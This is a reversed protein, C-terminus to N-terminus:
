PRTSGRRTVPSPYPESVCAKRSECRRAHCSKISRGSSEPQPVKKLKEFILWRMGDFNPRLWLADIAMFLFYGVVLAASGITFSLAFTLYGSNREAVQSAKNLFLRGCVLSSILNASALVFAFSPPYM